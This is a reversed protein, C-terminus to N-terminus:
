FKNLLYSLDLNFYILIYLYTHAGKFSSHKSVLMLAILLIM